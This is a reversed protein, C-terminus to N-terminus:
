FRYVKERLRFWGSWGFEERREVWVGGRVGEEM